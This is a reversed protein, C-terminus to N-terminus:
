GNTSPTTEPAPDPVIIGDGYRLAIDGKKVSINLVGPLTDGKNTDSMGVSELDSDKDGLKGIKVEGEGTMISRKFNNASNSTSIDVSGKELTLDLSEFDSEILNVNVEGLEFTTKESILKRTSIKGSKMEFSSKPTEVSLLSINSASGEFKLSAPKIGNFEITSKTANVSVDCAQSLNVLRLTVNTLTMSLQKIEEADSIYIDLSRDGDDDALLASRLTRWVGAFTAGSGNLNIYDTISINNSITLSKKSVSGIYKNPEFNTLKAYSTKAGGHITVTCDVLDLSVRTINEDSFEIENEIVGDKISEGDIAADNPALGRAYECIFFGGFVLVLSVILFIVSTIKM